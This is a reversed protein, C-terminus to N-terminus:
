QQPANQNITKYKHDQNPRSKASKLTLERLKDINM